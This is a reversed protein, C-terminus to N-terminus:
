HHLADPMSLEIVTNNRAATLAGYPSIIHVRRPILNAPPGRGRSKTNSSRCCYAPRSSLHRYVKLPLRGTLTASSHPLGCGGGDLRM